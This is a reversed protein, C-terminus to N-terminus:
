DELDLLKNVAKQMYDPATRYARILQDDSFDPGFQTETPENNIQIYDVEILDTKNCGFIQSMATIMGMNPETRDCEWSSITRNSVHLLEGLTRQDMGIQQRMKKINGGIGMIKCDDEQM